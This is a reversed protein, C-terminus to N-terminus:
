REAPPIRRVKEIFAELEAGREWKLHKRQVSAPQKGLFV